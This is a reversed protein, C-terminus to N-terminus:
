FGSERGHRRSPWGACPQIVRLHAQRPGDWALAAAYGAPASLTEIRVRRGRPSSALRRGSLGVRIMRPSVSFGSGDVKAVAEKRVWAAYFARVRRGGARARFNLLEAPSLASEALAMLEPLPVVQEVDIGVARGPAIAVAVMGDAHSLSVGIRVRGALRPKAAASGTLRIARPGCGCTRAVLQKLAARAVISGLASETAVPKRASSRERQGCLRELRRLMRPGIGTPVFWLEIGGPALRARGAM